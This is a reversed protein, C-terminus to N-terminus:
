LKNTNNQPRIRLRRVIYRILQMKNKQKLSDPISSKKIFPLITQKWIEEKMSIKRSM